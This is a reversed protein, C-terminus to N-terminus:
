CTLNRQFADLAVGKLQDDNYRARSWSGEGAQQQAPIGPLIGAFGQIVQCGVDAQLDM